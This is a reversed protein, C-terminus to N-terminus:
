RVEPQARGAFHLCRTGDSLSFPVIPMFAGLADTLFTGDAAQRITGSFSDRGLSEAALGGIDIQVAPAGSPADSVAIRMNVREYVGAWESVDAAGTSPELPAPPRIGCIEEIATATLSEMAAGLGPGNGLVVVATGHDPLIRLSAGQGVTGGDHGTIRTGDWTRLMFGLGWDDALSPDPVRVAPAFAAAVASESLLRGGGPGTGGDLYLRAFALVDAASAALGGASGMTRPTAVLPALELGDAGPVHGFAARHRLAEEPLTCSHTMGLPRLLRQALAEDYTLGTVREILRGAIAFGTNSYSWAAGPAFVQALEGCTAVYRELVDEGRGLDLFHDGDIGSTHTLLHRATVAERAAADGWALEPMVSVLPADLDLLGDDALMLLLTATYAKTVSGIQFVSDPTADVATALNLVGSAFTHVEGDSLIGLSLGPLSDPSALDDLRAQWADRDITM